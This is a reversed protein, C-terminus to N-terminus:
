PASEGTPSGNALQSKGRRRYSRAFSYVLGILGGVVPIGLGVSISIEEPTNVYAFVFTVTDPRGVTFSGAGLADLVFLGGFSLLFLLGVSALAAGVLSDWVVATMSLDLQREEAQGLIRFGSKHDEATVHAPYGLLVLTMWLDGVAGGANAALPLAIWGWEFVLMLPVGLLTLVVLPTLLVVIFQNRTFRHDTTAYAYPLIFHALGVGYRPKGGYYRIALGHLWEHPILIASVLVLLALVNVPDVWWGGGAPALDYSVVEGTTLQYLASLGGIAVVFGLTGVVTWQIALSRSLQLDALVTEQESARPGAM